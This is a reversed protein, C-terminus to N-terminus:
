KKLILRCDAAPLSGVENMAGTYVGAQCVLTKGDDTVKCGLQNAATTLGVGGVTTTESVSTRAELTVVTPEATDDTLFRGTSPLTLVGGGDEGLIFVDDSSWVYSGDAKLELSYTAIRSAACSGKFVGTLPAPTTGKCDDYISKNGFNIESCGLSAAMTSSATCMLATQAAFGCGDIDLEADNAVCKLNDFPGFTYVGDQLAVTGAGGNLMYKGDKYLSLQHLEASSCRGVLERNDLQAGPRKTVNGDNVPSADRNEVNVPPRNPDEVRNSSSACGLL